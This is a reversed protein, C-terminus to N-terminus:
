FSPFDDAKPYEEKEVLDYTGKGVRKFIDRHLSLTATMTAGQDKAGEFKEAGTEILRSIIEKYHMPRGAERLVAITKQVRGASAPETKTRGPEKGEARAYDLRVRELASIRRDLSERERTLKKIEREIQSLFSAM